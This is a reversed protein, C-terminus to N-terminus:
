MNETRILTMNVNEMIIVSEIMNMNEMKEITMTVIEMM